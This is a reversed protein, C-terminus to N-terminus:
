LSPFSPLNWVPPLIVAYSRFGVFAVFLSFPCSFYDDGMSPRRRMWSDEMLTPRELHSLHSLGPLFVFRYHKSSLISVVDTLTRTMQM